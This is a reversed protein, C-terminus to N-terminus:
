AARAPSGMTSPASRAKLVEAAMGLRLLKEMGESPAAPDPTRALAILNRALQMPTILVGWPFGWWGLLLSFVADGLKRKTGCSKCCLTPRSAWSTMVLASWVRYSTHVDVPGPGSCRPCAGRHVTAVYRLVEVAPLSSAAQALAGKKQCESNCFRFEGDKKGWFLITTNCYACRAM